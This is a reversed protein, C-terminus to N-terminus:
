IELPFFFIMLCREYILKLFNYKQQQRKKKFTYIHLMINQNVIIFWM